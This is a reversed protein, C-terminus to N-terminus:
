CGYWYQFGRQQCQMLIVKESTAQLVLRTKSEIINLIETNNPLVGPVLKRCDMILKVIKNSDKIRRTWEDPGLLSQFCKKLENIYTTRVASLSPCRILIHAIDEDELCCLTCCADIVGYM